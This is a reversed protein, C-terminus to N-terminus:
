GRRPPSAKGGRPERNSRERRRRPGLVAAALVGVAVAIGGGLAWLGFGQRPSPRWAPDCDAVGPHQSVNVPDSGDANAVYVEKDGDRTSVFAIRKGDPSWAPDYDNGPSHTLDTLGSGDPSIVYIDRDGSASTSVFAIRQGDPSWQPPPWSPVELIEWNGQWRAVEREGSGDPNMVAIHAGAVLSHFAILGGSPSWQAGFTYGPRAGLVASLDTLNGGDADVRFIEVGHGSSATFVLAQGDPAWSPWLAAGPLDVRSLVVGQGDEIYLGTEVSVAIRDGAPSWTPLDRAEAGCTLCIPDGGTMDAIYYENPFPHGALGYTILRSGDPSWISVISEEYFPFLQENSSGDCNAIMLRALNRRPVVSPPEWQGWRYTLEVGRVAGCATLMALLLALCAAESLWRLLSRNLIM